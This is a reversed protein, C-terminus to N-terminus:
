ITHLAISYSRHLEYLIRNISNSAIVVVTTRRVFIWDYAVSCHTGQASMTQRVWEVSGCGCITFTKIAPAALCARPHTEMM